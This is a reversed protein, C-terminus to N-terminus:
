GPIRERHERNIGQLGGPGASRGARFERNVAGAWLAERLRGAVGTLDAVGLCCMGFDM